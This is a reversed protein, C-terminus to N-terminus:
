NSFYLNDVFITSAGTPPGVLICQAINSRTTLGTFDSLQVEYSIWEKLAPSPFDIQHEVDDGGGFTGDAGFDVLKIGFSTADATWVDLRIHTMAAADIKNAITEIGVFGLAAYKKTANGSVSVDKFTASSWDTKWTDVPENNYVDSFLSIVNAAKRTPTPAAVTPADDGVDNGATRAKESWENEMAVKDEKASAMADMFLIGKFHNQLTKKSAGNAFPTFRHVEKLAYYAARPYLSYLGKENTPGKAAVGFWEENMNNKGKIFDHSYGGNDWSANNDHVDLNSTQGFKWWGDSFQFTFGGLSNGTKGMGAANAYIEKWNDVMYRAQPLQDEENSIANFADAGFETFLFPKGYEEKVRTFADGFSAGRYMNTGYIDVDPCEEVVLEFFLLDGNCMAIPHSSDVSKMALTAANFLKYMARARKASEPSEVPIDETEAGGWFLGYNNENGLLFMLLGPTEKYQNVMDKTERILLASVRPDAYETNAMWDGDITLGYRGFPHNIMTYIGHQEYMYTIWKPPVGTYQRVANVGMNKLLSMEEDLAARIIDDPQTWLSYTYNTGIPFYDWNMGNIMFDGGNVILKTGEANQKLTVQSVQTFLTASSLVLLLQLAITQM